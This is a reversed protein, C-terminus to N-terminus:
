PTKILSEGYSILQKRIEMNSVCEYWNKLNNLHNVECIIENDICITKKNSNDLTNHLKILLIRLFDMIQTNSEINSEQNNWNNKISLISTQNEMGIADICSELPYNNLIGGDIYCNDKYIIPKFIMPIAFTMAVADIVKLDPFTKYSLEISELCNGNNLATAYLFLKKQTLEYFQELTIDLNISKANFLPEMISKSIKIGDIGKDTIINWINSMNKSFVTEWPRNIFYNDLDEWDYNLCLICALIGGVSTGYISELNDYSWKNNINLQKLAGYSVFGTPGGGSIVIHKIM